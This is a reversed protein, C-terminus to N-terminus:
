RMRYKIFHMISGQRVVQSIKESPDYNYLVLWLTLNAWNRVAYYQVIRLVYCWYALM